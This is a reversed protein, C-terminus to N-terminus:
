LKLSITALSLPPSHIVRLSVKGFGQVIDPNRPRVAAAVFIFVVQSTGLQRQLVALTMLQALLFPGLQM